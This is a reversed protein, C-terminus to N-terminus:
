RGLYINAELFCVTNARFVLFVVSSFIDLDVRLVLRIWDLGQPRYENKIFM